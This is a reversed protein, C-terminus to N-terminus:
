RGRNAGAGQGVGPGPFQGPQFQGTRGQGQGQGQGTAAGIAGQLLEIQEGEELGDTIQTFSGGQVGIQVERSGSGDAMTVTHTTGSTVVATTPVYLVNAAKATQVSVNATQGIRATAPVKALTFTASYSVVGNTTTPTPSVSTLTATLSSGPEANLTVTASQKAKIKIADAEPFSAVVQLSKLDAIDVFGTGSSTTSGSTSGTSTGTSGQGTSGQGTSGTGSSSGSGAVNGVAGNIATITGAIPAKLTTAAVDAQAGELNQDAQEKDAKARALSAKANTVAVEPSQSQGQSQTQTQQGDTPTPTAAADEAEEAADEADSLTEEAATVSNAAAIQNQEAIRVAREAAAPDVKAIAAGKAVVQGVKVLIATVTGSTEFQPSATQGSQLTGSSTVSATVDGRAVAVSPRTTSAAESDSRFFLLYATVAIALVVAVLSVNLLSLGPFKQRKLVRANM